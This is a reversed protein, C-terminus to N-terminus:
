KMERTSDFVACKRFDLAVAFSTVVEDGTLCKAYYSLASNTFELFADSDLSSQRRMTPSSLLSNLSSGTSGRSGFCLSHPRNPTSTVISCLLLCCAVFVRGIVLCCCVVRAAPSCGILRWCSALSRCNDRRRRRCSFCHTGTNM